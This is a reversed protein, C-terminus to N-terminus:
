QQAPISDNQQTQLQALGQTVLLLAQSAQQYAANPDTYTDHYEAYNIDDQQPQAQQMTFRMANGLTLVIAVAAAARMLPKLRDGLTITVAKVRVNKDAAERQGEGKALAEVRDYWESNLRMQERDADALRFLPAYQRLSQPADEPLTDPRFFLRLMQEEGLTTQGEFYREALQSFYSYDM